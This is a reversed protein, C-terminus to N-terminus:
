MKLELGSAPLFHTTVIDPSESRWAAKCFVPWTLTWTEYDNRRARYNGATHRVQGKTENPTM